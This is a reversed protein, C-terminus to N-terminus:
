ESKEVQHQGPKRIIERYGVKWLMIGQVLVVPIILLLRRWDRSCELPLCINTTAVVTTWIFMVAVPALENWNPALSQRAKADQLRECLIKPWVYPTDAECYDTAKAEAFSISRGPDTLVSLVEGCSATIHAAISRDSFQKRIFKLVFWWTALVIFVLALRSYFELELTSNAFIVSALPNSVLNQM